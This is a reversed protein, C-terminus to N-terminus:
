GGGSNANLFDLAVPSPLWANRALCRRWSPPANGWARRQPGCYWRAPRGYPFRGVLRGPLARHAMEAPPPGMAFPPGRPTLGPPDGSLVAPGVPVSADPHKDPCSEAWWERLVRAVRGDLATKRFRASM